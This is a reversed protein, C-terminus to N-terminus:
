REKDWFDCMHFCALYLKAKDDKRISEWASFADDAKQILADVERRFLNRSLDYDAEHRASQLAVFAKAVQILQTPAPNPSPSLVLSKPFIGRM